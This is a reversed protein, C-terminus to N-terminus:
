ELVDPRDLLSIRKARSKERAAALWAAKARKERLPGSARISRADRLSRGQVCYILEGSRRRIADRLDALDARPPRMSPSSKVSDGWRPEIPRASGNFKAWQPEM